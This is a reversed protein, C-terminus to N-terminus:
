RYIKVQYSSSDKYWKHICDEYKLAKPSRYMPLISNLIHKSSLLRAEENSVPTVPLNGRKARGLWVDDNCVSLPGCVFLNSIKSQSGEYLRLIIYLSLTWVGGSVLFGEPGEFFGLFQDVPELVHWRMFIFKCFPWKSIRVEDDYQIVVEVVWIFTCLFTKPSELEYGFSDHAVGLLVSVSM